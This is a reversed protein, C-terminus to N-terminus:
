RAHERGVAGNRGRFRRQFRVGPLQRELERRAFDGHIGQAAAHGIGGRQALNRAVLLENFDGCLSIRM